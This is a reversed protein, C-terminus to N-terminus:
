TKEIIRCGIRGRGISIIGQGELKKLHKRLKDDSISFGHKKLLNHISVRGIGSSEETHEKIITLILDELNQTIQCVPMQDISNTGSYQLTSTNQNLTTLVSSTTITQPFEGLTIYYDAVNKLERVNGPWRYNQLLEIEEFSLLKFKEKTFHRFLLIIDEPRERLPPLAIPINCFRYYLDERFRKMKIAEPLDINTAAIIRIDLNIVKDSGIRTIQKEQLVRLLRAQLPLSMDGIEDLFITGHNAQEFFGIKGNPSAGTFSGKEYGFLESELLSPPLAACNVAVFPKDKRFSFNHMSQAIMEKGTGSEGTLLVTFDTLAAKKALTISRQMSSSTYLLDDFHYKAVLGKKMLQKNLNSEMNKIDTETSIRLSYGVIQDAIRVTTKTAIYNVGQFHFLKNNYDVHTFIENSVDGFLIKLSTNSNSLEFTIDAKDNYYITEYTNDVIIVAEQLAQINQRIIENKISDTIYRKATYGTTRQIYSLLNRNIHPNNLNLRNIITTFTNADICRNHVNIIKTIFSPVSGLEDPTVAVRIHQYKRQDEDPIYPIFNLYNLGLEYLSNVTQITSENSDNVVLVDTDPALAYIGDLYEREFTRTLVIVNDLSSIYEKMQHLREEYLVLFLDGDAIDGSRIESLFCIKVNIFGDFVFRLDNLLNTCLDLKERDNFVIYVTKM